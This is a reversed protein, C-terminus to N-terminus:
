RRVSAALAFVLRRSDVARWASLVAAPAAVEGRVLAAGRVPWTKIVAMHALDRRLDGTVMQPGFLIAFAASGSRLM